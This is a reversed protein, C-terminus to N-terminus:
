FSFLERGATGTCGTADARALSPPWPFQCLLISLRSFPLLADGGLDIRTSGALLLASSCALERTEAVTDNGVEVDSPAGTPWRGVQDLGMASSHKSSCSIPENGLILSGSLAGSAKHFGAWAGVLSSGRFSRICAEMISGYWKVASSTPPPLAIFIRKGPMSCALIM